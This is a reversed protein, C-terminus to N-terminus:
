WSIMSASTKKIMSSLATAKQVQMFSRLVNTLPLILGNRSEVIEMTTLKELVSGLRTSSESSWSKGSNPFIGHLSCRLAQAPEKFM